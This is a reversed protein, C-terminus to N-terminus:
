KTTTKLEMYKKKWNDRSKILDAIKMDKKWILNLIWDVSDSGFIRRLKITEEVVTEEEDIM